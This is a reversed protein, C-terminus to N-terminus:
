FILSSSLSNEITRCELQAADQLHALVVVVPVPGLLREGVLPGAPAESVRRWRPRPWCFLPCIECVSACITAAVASSTSLSTLDMQLLMSSSMWPITSATLLCGLM